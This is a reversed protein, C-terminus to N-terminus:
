FTRSLSGGCRPAICLIPELFRRLAADMFDAAWPVAAVHRGNSGGGLSAGCQPSLFEAARPFAVAHRTDHAANHAADMPLFGVAFLIIAGFVLASLNQVLTSAVPTSLAQENTSVQTSM